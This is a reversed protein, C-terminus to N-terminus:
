RRKLAVEDIGRKLEHIPEALGWGAHGMMAHDAHKDLVSRETCGLEGAVEADM